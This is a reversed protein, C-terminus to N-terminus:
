SHRLYLREDDAAADGHEDDTEAGKLLLPVGHPRADAAGAPKAASNPRPWPEPDGVFFDRAFAAQAFDFAEGVDVCPREGICSYFETAFARAASDAVSTRWCVVRVRPLRRTIARGLPESFCANLFCLELGECGALVSVVDNASPTAAAGDGQFVLTDQTSWWADRVCHGSFHFIRPNLAAARLVDEPWRAAPFVERRSPPVAEILRHVESMLALQQSEPVRVTTGDRPDGPRDVRLRRPMCFCAVVEIGDDCALRKLAAAASDLDARARASRRVCKTPEAAAVGPPSGALPSGALPSGALLSGVLSRARALPLTAASRLRAPPPAAQAEALHAAQAEALHKVAARLNAPESALRVLRGGATPPALAAHNLSHPTSAAARPPTSAVRPPPTPAAARPSLPRAPEAPSALRPEKAAEAELRLLLAAIRLADIAGDPPADGPWRAEIAALRRILEGDRRALYARRRQLELAGDADALLSYFAAVPQAGRAAVDAPPSRLQASDRLALVAGARQAFAAVKPSLEVLDPNSSLDLWQLEPLAYLADDVAALRNDAVDLRELASLADVGRPVETLANGALRLSRLRPLQALLRPWQHLRNRRLDLGELRRLAAWAAPVAQLGLGRACLHELSDGLAAVATLADHRLRVNDSVDLRRLRWGLLARPLRDFLTNDDLRVDVATTPAPCFGAAAAEALGVEIEVETAGVGALDVLRVGGDTSPDEDADDGGSDDDESADAEGGRRRRRRPQLSEQLRAQITEAVLVQVPTPAPTPPAVPAATPGAPPTRPPTRAADTHPPAGSSLDAEFVLAAELAAARSDSRWARQHGRQLSNTKEGRREISSQPAARGKASGKKAPRPGEKTPRPGETARAKFHTHAATALRLGRLSPARRGLSRARDSTLADEIGHFDMSSSPRMHSAAVRRAVGAQVLASGDDSAESWDSGDQGNSGLPELGDLM